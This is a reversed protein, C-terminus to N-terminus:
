NDAPWAESTLHHKFSVVFDIQEIEVLVPWAGSEKCLILQGDLLVKGIRIATGQFYAINKM